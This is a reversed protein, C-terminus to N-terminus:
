RFNSMFPINILYHEKLCRITTYGPKFLRLATKLKNMTEQPDVLPEDPHDINIPGFLKQVPFDFEVIYRFLLLHTVEARSGDFQDLFEGRQKFNM